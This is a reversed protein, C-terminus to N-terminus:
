LNKNWVIFIYLYLSLNGRFPNDAPPGHHAQHSQETLMCLIHHMGVPGVQCMQGGRYALGCLANNGIIEPFQESAVRALNSMDKHPSVGANKAMKENQPKVQRLM